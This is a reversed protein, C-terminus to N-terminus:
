TWSFHGLTDLTVRYGNVGELSYKPKEVETVDLNFSFSQGEKLETWNEASPFIFSQSNLLGPLFFLLVFCRYMM